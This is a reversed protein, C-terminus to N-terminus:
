TSTRAAPSTPTSAPASGSCALRGVRRGRDHGRDAHLDRRDAALLTTKGSGNRGVLASRSARSSRSPCTASRGSTARGRRPPAVITEKLTRVPGAPLRPVPPQRRRSRRRRAGRSPAYRGIGPSRGDGGSSSRCAASLVDPDTAPLVGHGLNFIHGPRGAARELITARARRSGSGRASCCRRTSTARCAATTASASGAADLPVRWDLGIVDGGAAALSPLLHTAGTGFHITPAAVAGLIRASYRAVFERTTRSAVARGVWSDFLQVVDAGAERRRRRRLARVDGRAEGHARALRRARRVHAGEDHAFDRSPRGEVLYGAVTFPGGCFGVVRRSRRRARARVLRVTELVFPM